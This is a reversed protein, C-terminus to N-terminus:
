CIRHTSYQVTSFCCSVAIDIDRQQRTVDLSQRLDSVEEQLDRNTKTLQM